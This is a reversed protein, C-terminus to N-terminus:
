AKKAEKELETSIKEIAAKRAEGKTQDWAPRLFPQAPTSATGFEVLHLYNTPNRIETRGNVEVETRFGKRVGIIGVAVGSNRYVKTKRGISKRLLGTEKPALQKARKTPLKTGEAVGKRLVRRKAADKLRTM